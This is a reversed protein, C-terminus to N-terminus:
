LERRMKSVSALESAQQEPSLLIPTLLEETCGNQQKISYDQKLKVLNDLLREQLHANKVDIYHYLKVGGNAIPRLKFGEEALCPEIVHPSRQILHADALRDAVAKRALKISDVYLCNLKYTRCLKNVFVADEVVVFRTDAGIECATDKLCGAFSSITTIAEPLKILADESPNDIEMMFGVADLNRRTLMKYHNNLPLYQFYVDAGTNRYLQVFFAEIQQQYFTKELYAPMGIRYQTAHPTQEGWATSFFLQFICLLITLPQWIFRV